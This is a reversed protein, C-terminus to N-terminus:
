HDDGPEQFPSPADNPAIGDHAARLRAIRIWENGCAGWIDAGREAETLEADVLALRRLAEEHDPTKFWPRRM